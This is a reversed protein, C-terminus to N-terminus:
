KKLYEFEDDYTDPLSGDSKEKGLKLTKGDIGYFQHTVFGAAQACSTKGTVDKEVNLTWGTLGCRYAGANAQSVDQSNKLLQTAKKLTLDLKRVPKSDVTTAEGIKFTETKKEVVRLTKCTGDDFFEDLRTVQDDAFVLTRYVSAGEFKAKPDYFVDLDYVDIKVPQSFAISKTIDLMPDANVGQFFVDLPESTFDGSLGSLVMSGNVYPTLDEVNVTGTSASFTGIQAGTSQNKVVVEVKEFDVGITYEKQELEVVGVLRIQVLLSTQGEQVGSFTVGNGEPVICGTKWTGTLASAADAMAQGTTDMETFGALESKGCYALQFVGMLKTKFKALGSVLELAARRWVFHEGKTTELLACVNAEIKEVGALASSGNLVLGVTMPLVPIVDNGAADTANMYVAVSAADGASAFVQPVSDAVKMEVTTGNPVANAPVELITGAAAGETIALTNPITADAVSVKVQTKDETQEEPDPDQPKGSSDSSSKKGCSFLVLGAAIMVKISLRPALRM